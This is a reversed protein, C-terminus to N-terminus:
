RNREIVYRAIARLPDAKNDFADLVKLANNILQGAFTEAAQLGLLSPYTNKGRMQDTGTAKGLREADGKVNLIDDAVQFALGIHQAYTQLAKRQSKSAGSVLAGSDVSVEIMKGTKLRHLAELEAKSITTGEFAMDRMQGEIMGKNGAASAIQASARLWRHQDDALCACGASALIEFALTLLADGALIATAEDFQVHCTPKGRRREDNDMAPLDDHILSYTHILELSCAVPLVTKRSGGVTEAAAICLAPRLRKGGAMVSYAMARCIQTHPSAGGLYSQLTHEVLGRLNDLYSKLDFNMGAM